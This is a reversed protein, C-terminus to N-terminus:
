YSYLQNFLLKFTGHSQARFTIEPGFAYLKGKGIRAEFAGIGDQLYEQGWAWGSRLSKPHSFWLIPKISGGAMAETAVRFVPSNDFYIDAQEPMGWAAPLKNNVSVRLVSGPIYYKEAPLRAYTGNASREVLHNRVPLGLHYAINTSSGIYQYGVLGAVLGMLVLSVLGIVRDLLM